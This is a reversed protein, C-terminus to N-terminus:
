RKELTQRYRYDIEKATAILSQPQGSQTLMNRLMESDKPLCHLGIGERAELIKVNWKTNVADRLEKFDVHEKECLMKLEEAFAIELYRHSNEVLKSMAAVKISSVLHAKIGIRHYFEWGKDLCCPALGGLVRLQNVGHESDGAFYRHPCHVIHCKDGVASTIVDIDNAPITSDICVLPEGESESCIRDAVQLIGSIYPESMNGPDHTSVCIVYVDYGIFSKAKRKIVRAKHARRIADESIDFGDVQLGKKTMFEANSYGIQGLGIVLVRGISGRGM